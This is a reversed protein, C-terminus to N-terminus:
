NNIGLSTIDALRCGQCLPERPYVRVNIAVSETTRFADERIGRVPEISDKISPTAWGVYRRLVSSLDISHQSGINTEIGFLRSRPHNGTVEIVRIVNVVAGVIRDESRVSYAIGLSVPAAPDFAASEGNPIGGSVETSWLRHTPGPSRGPNPVRHGDGGIPRPRGSAPRISRRPTTGVLRRHACRCPLRRADCRGPGRSACGDPTMTRPTPRGPGKSTSRTPPSSDMVFPKCSSLACSDIRGLPPLGARIRRVAPRDFRDPRPDPLAGPLSCTPRSRGPRASISGTRRPGAGPRTHDGAHSRDRTSHLPARATSIDVTATTGVPRLIWSDATRRYLDLTRPRLTARADTLYDRLYHGVTFATPKANVPNNGIAEAHVRGRVAEADARTPFTGPVKHRTADPATSRVRFRGSPLRDIAGFVARATM